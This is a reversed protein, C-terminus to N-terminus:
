GVPVGPGVGGDARSKTLAIFIDELSPLIARRSTVTIGEATLREVV